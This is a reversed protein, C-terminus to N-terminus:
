HNPIECCIEKKLSEAIWKSLLVSGNNNLHAADMWNTKNNLIDAPPILVKSLKEYQDAYKPSKMKSGYEPLYVFIFPIKKDNLMKIMKNLYAFPYKIKINTIMESEYRKFRKQWKKENEELELDTVIRSEATYGYLEPNIEPYKNRFIFHEKFYELRASGGNFLDSFYDRNIPTPTYFLDKSNALYPFIDHSNKAEDENVEIVVMKPSKKELLLKLLIYELNRGIRCYGLNTVRSNTELLEEIKKDQFAHITHSSGIFAIDVPEQNSNIRDYIWAGHNYCDNKIYNFAFKKPYPALFLLAVPIIILGFFLATKQIISKM